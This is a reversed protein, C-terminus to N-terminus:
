EYNIVGSGVAKLMPVRRQLKLVAHANLIHEGWDERLRPPSPEGTATPEGASRM